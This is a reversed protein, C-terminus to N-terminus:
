TDLSFSVNPKDSKQDYLMNTNVNAFSNEDFGDGSYERDLFFSISVDSGSTKMENANNPVTLLPKDFSSNNNEMLDLINSISTDSASTHISPLLLANTNTSNRENSLNSKTSTEESIEEIHIFPVFDDNAIDNLNSSTAGM